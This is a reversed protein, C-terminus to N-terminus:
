VLKPHIIGVNSGDSIRVNIKWVKNSAKLLYRGGKSVIFIFRSNMDTHGKSVLRKGRYLSISQAFYAKVLTGYRIRDIFVSLLYVLGILILIVTYLAYITNYGFIYSLFSFWLVEAGWIIILFVRLAFRVLGTFGCRKVVINLVMEEGVRVRQKSDVYPAEVPLYTAHGKPGLLKAGSIRVTAVRGEFRRLLSVPVRIRGQTDALVSFLLKRDDYFRVRIHGCPKGSDVCYVIGVTKLGLWKNLFAPPEFFWSYFRSFGVLVAQLLALAGSVLLFLGMPPVIRRVPPAGISNAINGGLTESLVVLDLERVAKCSKTKAVLKVSYVGEGPPLVAWSSCAPVQHGLVYVKDAGQVCWRVLVKANRVSVPPIVSFEKIQPCEKIQATSKEVRAKIQISQSAARVLSSGLSGWILVGVFVIGSIAQYVASKM